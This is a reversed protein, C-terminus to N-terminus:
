FLGGHMYVSTEPIYVYVRIGEDLYITKVQVRIQQFEKCVFTFLADYSDRNFDHFQNDKMEWRKEKLESLLRNALKEVFLADKIARRAEPTAREMFDNCDCSHCHTLATTIHWLGDILEFIFKLADEHQSADGPRGLNQPKQTCGETTAAAAQPGSQSTIIGALVVKSDQDRDPCHTRPRRARKSPQMVACHAIVFVIVLQVFLRSGGVARFVHAVPPVFQLFM